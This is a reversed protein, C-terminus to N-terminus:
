NTPYWFEVSTVYIVDGFTDAPRGITMAVFDGPSISHGGVSYGSLTYKLDYHNFTYISSNAAADSAAVSDAYTVFCAGSVNTAAAASCFYVNLNVTGSTNSTPGTLFHVYVVPTGATASFGSPVNFTLMLNILSSSGLAWATAPLVGSTAASSLTTALVAANGAPPYAAM